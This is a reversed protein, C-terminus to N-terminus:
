LSSVDDLYHHWDQNSHTTRALPFINANTDPIMIIVSMIWEGTGIVARVQKHASVIILSEFAKIITTTNEVIAESHLM